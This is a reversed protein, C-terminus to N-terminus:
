TDQPFRLGGHVGRFSPGSVCRVRVQPVAARDAGVTRYFLTGKLRGGTCLWNASAGPEPAVRIRVAGDGDPIATADNRHAIPELWHNNAQIMWYDCTVAPITIELYEDGTLDYYGSYYLTNPDGRVASDLEPSLPTMRNPQEAFIASWRLFQGLLAALQAAAGAFRADTAARDWEAPSAPPPADERTIAIAAKGQGSRRYLERVFLVRSGAGLVIGARGDLQRALTFAFRGDTDPAFDAATAYGDLQLGAQETPTYIGFGIRDAGGTRGEVRYRGAPDLTMQGMRYDPNASAFLYGVYDLGPPGISPAPLSRQIVYAALRTLYAEGEARLHEDPAAAEIANRGADQAALWAAYGGVAPASM